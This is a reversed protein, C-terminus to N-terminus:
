KEVLEMKLGFVDLLQSFTYLTPMRDGRIYQYITANCVGTKRALTQADLERKEMEGVIWDSFEEETM